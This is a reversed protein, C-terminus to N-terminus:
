EPLNQRLFRLVNDGMIKRIQVETLGADLLTDTLQVIHAADFPVTTAGDFDSGLAVHDVGAVNIAHRIARAIAQPTSGCVAVDWFGIGILGGNNAIAKLQGDSLNRQNYCTGQVGTHSVIVPRKAIALVDNITQPSSHALDVIMRHSEMRPILERGLATLGGRKKGHASGAFENDFFHALGIMRFGADYLENLNEVKGDLAHAGEIGLWGGVVNKNGARARLFEELDSRQRILKFEGNSDDAFERLEKAQQMARATLSRWTRPPWRRALAVKTIEDSDASNSVINLNKPVKTVVTFAQLAINGERMRPFDLHAYDIRKNLDRGFLLSDAHLDAIFLTPHLAQSRASPTVPVAGVVRNLDNDTKGPLVFFAYYAAGAAVGGLV